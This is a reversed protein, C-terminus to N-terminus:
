PCSSYSARRITPTGSSLWRHSSRPRAALALCSTQILGVSLLTFSLNLSKTFTDAIPFRVHSTVLVSITVWMSLNCSRKGKSDFAVERACVFNDRNITGKGADYQQATIEIVLEDLSVIAYDNNSSSKRLLYMDQVYFYGTQILMCPQGNIGIRHSLM